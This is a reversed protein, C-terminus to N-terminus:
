REPNESSPKSTSKLKSIVFLAIAALTAAASVAGFTWGMWENSTNKIIKIETVAISDTHEAKDTGISSNYTYRFTIDYSDDQAKLDKYVKYFSESWLENGNADYGKVTFKVNTVIGDNAKIKFSGKIDDEVHNYYTFKNIDYELSNKVVDNAGVCGAVTFVILSLMISFLLILIKKMM